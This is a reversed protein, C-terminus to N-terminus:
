STSRWALTMLSGIMESYTFRTPCFRTRFESALTGKVLVDHISRLEVIYFGPQRHQVVAAFHIGLFVGISRPQAPRRAATRPRDILRACIIALLGILILTRGQLPPRILAPHGAGMCVSFNHFSLISSPMPNTEHTGDKPAVAAMSGSTYKFSTLNRADDANFPRAVPLGSTSFVTAKM